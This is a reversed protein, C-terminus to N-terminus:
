LSYPPPPTWWVHQCQKSAILFSTLKKSWFVEHVATSLHFLGGQNQGGSEQLSNCEESELCKSNGLVAKVILSIVM